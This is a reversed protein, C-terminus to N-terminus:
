MLFIEIYHEIVKYQAFKLFINNGFVRVIKLM